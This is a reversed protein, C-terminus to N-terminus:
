RHAKKGNGNRLKQLIEILRDLRELPIMVGKQTYGTYKETTIYHRIDFYPKGNISCDKKIHLSNANSLPIEAFVKGFDVDTTKQSM